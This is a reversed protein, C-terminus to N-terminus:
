IMDMYPARDQIIEKAFKGHEIFRVFHRCSEQALLNMRECLAPDFWLDMHQIGNSASFCVVAFGGTANKDSYAVAGSTDGKLIQRGSSWIGGYKTWSFIEAWDVKEVPLKLTISGRKWAGSNWFVEWGKVLEASHNLVLASRKKQHPPVPVQIKHSRTQYVCVEVAAAVLPEIVLRHPPIRASVEAFGPYEFYTEVHFPRPMM